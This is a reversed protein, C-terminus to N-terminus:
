KGRCCSRKAPRLRRTGTLKHSPRAAKRHRRLRNSRAGKIPVNDLTFEPWHRQRCGGPLIDRGAYRPDTDRCRADGLNNATLAGWVSAIRSSGSSPRRSLWTGNLMTSIGPVKISKTQGRPCSGILWVDVHDKRAIHRPLGLRCAFQALIAWHHFFRVVVLMEGIADPSQKDPRPTDGDYSLLPRM